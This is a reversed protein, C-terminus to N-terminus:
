RIAWWWLIQIEAGGAYPLHGAFLGGPGGAPVDATHSEVVDVGQARGVRKKDLDLVLGGHLEFPMELGQCLLSYPQQM